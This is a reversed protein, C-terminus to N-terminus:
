NCTTVAGEWDAYSRTSGRGALCCMGHQTCEHGGCCSMAGNQYCTQSGLAICSTYQAAAHAAKAERSGPTQCWRVGGSEWEGECEFDRGAHSPITNGACQCDSDTSSRGSSDFTCIANLAKCGRGCDPEDGGVSNKCAVYQSGPGGDDCEGDFLYSCSGEVAAAAAQAHAAAAAAAIQAQILAFTSRTEREAGTDTPTASFSLAMTTMTAFAVKAIM